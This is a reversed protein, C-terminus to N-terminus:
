LKWRVKRIGNYPYVYLEKGVNFCVRDDNTGAAIDVTKVFSVRVPTNNPGNLPMRTPRSYESLNMLKYTGERTIFQTRIEDRTGGSTFDGAVAMKATRRQAQSFSGTYKLNERISLIDANLRQIINM